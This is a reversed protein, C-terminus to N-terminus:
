SAVLYVWLPLWFVVESWKRYGEHAALRAVNTFIVWHALAMLAYVFALLRLAGGYETLLYVCLLVTGTILIKLLIVARKRGIVVVWSFQHHAMDEPQEIISTTLLNIYTILLLAIYYPLWNGFGHQSLGIALYLSSAYITAVMLEKNYFFRLRETTLSTLFFYLICFLILIFASLFLVVNYYTYALYTCLVLLAGMLICIQTRYTRVFVHRESAVDPNRITDLVHDTLYVLWTAAPLGLYWAINVNVNFCLPLPLM